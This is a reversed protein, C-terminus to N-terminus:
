ADDIYINLGNQQLCERYMGQQTQPNYLDNKLGGQEKGHQQARERSSATCDKRIDAPRYQFWYFWGLVSIVFVVLVAWRFRNEM